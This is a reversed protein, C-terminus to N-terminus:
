TFLGLYWRTLQPGWFLHLMAGLSLFPGFPIRARYGRGALLLFIAGIVAGTLSSILLILPLARWGMWAGIMALLKIDGGGIGERGTLHEYVFAVLFLAGGGAASGILSDLWFGNSFFFSVAWGALIGPLSLIDPIIQHKLDIFSITVLTTGFALSFLYQFSWGYRIYLFLSLAGTLAEVLPYQWSIPRHCHRCKGLLFLYSILPINDYFRIREGCHPCSSPPRVISRKEPIRYICVNLFSGIALGFALSFIDGFLPFTVM